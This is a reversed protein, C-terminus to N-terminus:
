LSVSLICMSLEPLHSLNRIFGQSCWTSSWLKLLESLFIVLNIHFMTNNEQTVYPRGYM